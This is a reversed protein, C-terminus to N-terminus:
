KALYFTQYINVSFSQASQKINRQNVYNCSQMGDYIELFKIIMGEGGGNFYINKFQRFIKKRESAIFEERGGYYDSMRSGLKRGLIFVIDGPFIKVPDSKYLTLRNYTGSSAIIIMVDTNTLHLKEGEIFLDGTKFPLFAKSNIYLLMACQLQPLSEIPVGVLRGKILEAIEFPLFQILHM